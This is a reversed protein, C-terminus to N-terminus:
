KKEMWCNRCKNRLCILIWQVFDKLIIIERRTKRTEGREKFYNDVAIPHPRMGNARLQVSLRHSFTTKGSSSPGAILVFRIEPRSAIMQAIEAIRREQMAEQVLVTEQVDGSTINRNLGGVTEIEQIDGWKVSEKMVQFFKTRAQFHPVIEPKDIEPM